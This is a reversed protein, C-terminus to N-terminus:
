AQLPKVFRHEALGIRGPTYVFVGGATPQDRRASESLGIGATTVALRDRSAGAFSPCTPRSTPAPIRDTEICVADCHM